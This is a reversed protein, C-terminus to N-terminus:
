RGDMAPTGSSYVSWESSARTAPATLQIKAGSPNSVHCAVAMDTVPKTAFSFTMAVAAESSCKASAVSVSGLRHDANAASKGLAPAMAANPAKLRSHAGQKAAMPVIRACIPDAFHVAM